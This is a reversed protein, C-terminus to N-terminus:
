LRFKLEDGVEIPVAAVVLSDARLMINGLINSEQPFRHQNKAMHLGFYSSHSGHYDEWVGYHANVWYDEIALSPCVSTVGVGALLELVWGHM